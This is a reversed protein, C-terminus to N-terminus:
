GDQPDPHEQRYHEWADVVTGDPLTCRPEDGSVSGGQEECFAAAPNPVQQEDADGACGAVLGLLTVPVGLLVIRRM